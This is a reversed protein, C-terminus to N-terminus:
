SLDKIHEALMDALIVANSSLAQYIDALQQQALAFEDKTMLGSAMKKVLAKREEDLEYTRAIYKKQKRIDTEM